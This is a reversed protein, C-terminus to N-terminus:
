NVNSDTKVGEKENTEIDDMIILYDDESVISDNNREILEQDYSARASINKRTNESLRLCNIEIVENFILTIFFIFCLGIM